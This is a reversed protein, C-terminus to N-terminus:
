SQSATRKSIFELLFFLSLSFFFLLGPLILKLRDQWYLDEWTSPRFFNKEGLFGHYYRWQM